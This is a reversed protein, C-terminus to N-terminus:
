LTAEFCSLDADDCWESLLLVQYTLFQLVERIRGVLFLYMYPLLRSLVPLSSSSSSSSSLAAAMNTSSTTSAATDNFHVSDVLVLSSVFLTDDDRAGSAVWLSIHTM